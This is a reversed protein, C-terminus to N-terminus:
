PAAGGRLDLLPAYSRIEPLRGFNEPPPPSTTAWELTQGQWPDDGAPRGRALSLLVNLLFVAVSLAIVWAGATSVANWTEFGSSAPYDAIRRPMGDYGLVLMPFFALNTGVVTLAFHIRGLRESLLTGTFKPFWYYVGALLGFMSGAFLTYHFHGVVFYSDNLHYDLPPSAVIIGTLGGILFQLLFGLAFLMPTAFRVVGKWMTAILDFYEVGATIALATSTLSFYENAVVGTTFMHHAWVSMSLAAFALLSLVMARYGFFRRGSFTTVVEAVAGVFPFFMVYVAPHGYFWFLYQYVAPDGDAGLHRSAAIMGLAILLAPFSTVVMLCTVLMTWCFVPMRLMAMGPARRRFLTALVSTSLAIASLTAVAVGIAWLDVGVGPSYTTDTLPLFSTWGAAAAGHATLLGAEMTLGGAVLAWLGFVALGPFALGAAGIQLPVLYVGLALALPTMVLYVMGSGHLTFAQDYESTSLLQLGPRALESRMLLAMLGSLVFFGFCVLFIRSAIRKHDVAAAARPHVAPAMGVTV